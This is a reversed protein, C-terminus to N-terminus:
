AATVDTQSAKMASLPSASTFAIMANCYASSENLSRLHLRPWHDPSRENFHRLMISGAMYGRLRTWMESSPFMCTQAVVPALSIASHLARRNM